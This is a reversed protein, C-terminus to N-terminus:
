RKAGHWSSSPPKPLGRAAVLLKKNPAPPNELLKLVRLSDRSSIQGRNAEQVVAKAALLAHRLVFDTLGTHTPASARLLLAREERRVRLSVRSNEKLEIRAMSSEEAAYRM